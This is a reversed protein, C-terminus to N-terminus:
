PTLREPDRPLLVAEKVNELNLMKQIIRDLGFGSGGHSISGYKFISAYIPDLKIKKEKAQKELIEIRNERQGGSAIEVGKYLIDFSRTGIKGRKMSYFPRVEFPYDTVFVFDENFEKKIYEGIIKESEADLDENEGLKKGKKLLMKKLENLSIRPIKKPVNLEVKLLEIENSNEKKIKTVLEKLLKEILNLIDNEDDIFGMEFDVGTFETLHRTTHSKEARYVQGIEAVREFGGMVFMQKYFQPSQALVAKKNFYKVEFCEAGSELGITTIKPTNIITFNNEAFFDVITKYINSRVSFIASVERRRTDLFRNDLRKPLETKSFDTTDIPLDQANNLVILETPLIEKGGVAQRSDVVEGKVYIVSERPIKELDQFINKPTQSAIGTVQIIGTRDRLILFKVKSLDRTNQVFGALEVNKLKKSFVDKILIRNEFFKEKQM